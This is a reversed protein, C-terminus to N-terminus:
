RRRFSFGDFLWGDVQLFVISSANISVLDGAERKRSLLNVHDLVYKVFSKALLSALTSLHKSADVDVRVILDVSDREDLVNVTASNFINDNV